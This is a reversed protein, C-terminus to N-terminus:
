MINIFVFICEDLIMNTRKDFSDHDGLINYLKNERKKVINKFYFLNSFKIYLINVDNIKEVYFNNFDNDNIIDDPVVFIIYKM